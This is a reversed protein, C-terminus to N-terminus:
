RLALPPDLRELIETSVSRLTRGDQETVLTQVTRSARVLGTRRDVEATRVSDSSLLRAGITPPRSGFGETLREVAAQLAEPPIRWSYSVTVSDDSVQELATRETGQVPGVVTAMVDSTEVAAPAYDQGAFALVWYALEAVSRMRDRLPLARTRQMAWIRGRIEPDEAGEPGPQALVAELAAWYAPEDEMGAIAPGRMHFVQRRLPAAIGAAGAAAAPSLTMVLDEGRRSFELAFVIESRERSGENEVINQQRYVLRRALPPDFPITVAAREEGPPPAAPAAPAPVALAALAALTLTAFPM